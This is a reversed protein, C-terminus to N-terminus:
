VYMQRTDYDHGVFAHQDEGDHTGRYSGPEVFREAVAITNSAGDLVDSIKIESQAPWAGATEVSSPLKWAHGKSRLATSGL